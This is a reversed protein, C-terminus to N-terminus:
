PAKWNQLLTIPTADELLTNILFRGDPAIDYQRNQQGDIGGGYIQTEFLAVPTGVEVKSAAISVPAGMMTGDPALYYLERGDPRWAPYIGGDTSVQWQGRPGDSAAGERPEVFPRLYIEMRGSENSMYAVWRGDPSFQPGKEVFETSLFTGM